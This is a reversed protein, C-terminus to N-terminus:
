KNKIKKKKLLFMWSMLIISLAILYYFAATSFSDYAGFPLKSTVNKFYILDVIHISHYLINSAILVNSIKNLDYFKEQNKTAYFYILITIISPLLIIVEPSLLAGLKLKCTEELIPICATLIRFVIYMLTLFTIGNLVNTVLYKKNM